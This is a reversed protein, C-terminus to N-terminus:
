KEKRPYGIETAILELGRVLATAAMAARPVGPTGFHICMDSIKEYVPRSLSVTVSIPKEQNQKKM